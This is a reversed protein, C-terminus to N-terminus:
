EDDEGPDLQMVDIEMQEYSDISGLLSGLLHKAEELTMDIDLGRDPDIIAITGIEWLCAARIM